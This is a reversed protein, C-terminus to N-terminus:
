EFETSWYIFKFFILFMRFVPQFVPQFVYSFSTILGIKYWIKNQNNRINVEEHYLDRDYLFWDM